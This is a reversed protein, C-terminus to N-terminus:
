KSVFLTYFIGTKYILLYVYKYVFETCGPGARVAVSWSSTPVAGQQCLKPPAAGPYLTCPQAAGRTASAPQGLM